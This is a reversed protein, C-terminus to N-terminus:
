RKGSDNLTRNHRLLNTNFYTARANTIARKAITKLEKAEVLIILNGTTYAELFKEDQDNLLEVIKLEDMATQGTQGKWAYLTLM